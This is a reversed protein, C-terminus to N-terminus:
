ITKELVTFGHLDNTHSKQKWEPNAKLFDQIASYTRGQREWRTDTDHICIYRNAFQSTHALEKSLHDYEHLTDLLVLDFPAERPTYTASDKKRLYFKKGAESAAAKITDGNCEEIDISVVKDCGALLAWTSVGSRFGCEYASEGEAALQRLYPLHKYIDSRATSAVKYGEEITTTM